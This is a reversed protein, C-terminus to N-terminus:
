KGEKTLQGYLYPFKRRLRRDRLAVAIRYPVALVLCVCFIPLAIFIVAQFVLTFVVELVTFLLM